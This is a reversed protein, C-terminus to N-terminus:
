GDDQRKAQELLAALVELHARVIGQRKKRVWEAGNRGIAQAVAPEELWAAVVQLLGSEDGVRTGGGAQLLEESMESFDEMHPGFVVPVGQSSAEIPNHGREPVLSGGVFVLDAAAYMKALEGCSDLVLVQQADLPQKSRLAVAFGRATALRAVEAARAPNRPAIVLRLDEFRDSLIRFVDLLQEEEGEHTSGAVWLRVGEPIGFFKRVEGKGNGIGPSSAYKLNGLLQVRGSEVGLSLMRERDQASQVAVLSFVGLIRSFFPRLGRYRGYSEESIRGNVLVAPVKCRKLSWLFNPWFDTEVLIFLDPRIMKVVRNTVWPLDIPFAIVADVVGGLKERVFREGSATTTSVILEGQPYRERIAELLPVASAAEGVSLAHLWIRPYRRTSWKKRAARGLGLRAGIRERHRPTVAVKVLLVPAALIMLIVVVINYLVLM